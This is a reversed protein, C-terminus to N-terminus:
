RTGLPRKATTVYGTAAVPDAFQANTVPTRDMWFCRVRVRHAPRENPQAWRGGSGMLIEGGSVWMTGPDEFVM